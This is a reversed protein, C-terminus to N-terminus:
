FAKEPAVPRAMANDHNCWVHDCLAVVTGYSIDARQSQAV